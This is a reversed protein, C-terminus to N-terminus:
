KILYVLLRIKSGSLLIFSSILFNKPITIKITTGENLTSHIEFTARGEYELKLRERVNKIGFGRNEKKQKSFNMLM